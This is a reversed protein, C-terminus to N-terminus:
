DAIQCGLRQGKYGQQRKNVFFEPHDVYWRVTKALGEQWSTSATWGLKKQLAVKSMSYRVDHGPRDEVHVIKSKRIRSPHNLDLKAILNSLENALQTVLDINRIEEGSTIHYTSGVGGRNGILILAEAHDEVYLWERSQLGSGYVPFDEGQLGKWIMLPILKEPFQYPGYNNCSHTFIVPIGYTKWWARVLHDAAAKSAAYPSNPQYPSTIEFHQNEALSGYVEDTSIHVLRFAEVDKNKLTRWYRRLAELLNATGVVNTEVFKMPADISRDVHTEAALHLVLTPRFSNVVEAVRESEVLDVQHLRVREAGNAEELATLDASYSLSDLIALEATTTRYLQRVVASGIFGCGGTILIRQHLNSEKLPKADGDDFFRTEPYSFVRYHRPM